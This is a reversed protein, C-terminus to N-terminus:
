WTCRCGTRGPRGPSLRTRWGCGRSSWTGWRQRSGGGVAQGDQDRQLCGQGGGEGQDDGGRLQQLDDDGPVGLAPEAQGERLRSLNLYSEKLTFEVALTRMEGAEEQDIWSGHEELEKVSRSVTEWAKFEEENLNVPGERFKKWLNAKAQSIELREETRKKLRMNEEKSARSRGYKLKKVKVLALRDLKEEERIRDFELIRRSRWREDNEKLFNVSERM